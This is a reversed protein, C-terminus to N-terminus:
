KSVFNQIADLKNDIRTSILRSKTEDTSVKAHVDFLGNLTDIEKRPIGVLDELRIGLGNGTLVEKIGSDTM